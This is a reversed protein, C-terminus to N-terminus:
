KSLLTKSFSGLPWCRNVNEKSLQEMQIVQEESAFGYNLYMLEDEKLTNFDDSPIYFTISGNGTEDNSQKSLHFNKSGIYLVFVNNGVYFPKDSTLTFNITNNSRKVTAISVKQKDQAFAHYSCLLIIAVCLTIFHKM